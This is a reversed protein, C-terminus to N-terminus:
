DALLTEAYKIVQEPVDALYEAGYQLLFERSRFGWTVSICKIGANKATDIDVDSDGCYVAFRKDVNIREMLELIRKPDPKTLGETMGCVYDVCDPFYTEKLRRAFAEDKNTHAAVTFNKKKLTKLMESVGEYPHTKDNTHLNYYERQLRLAEESLEKRKETVARLMLVRVGNGVMKEVDKEGYEPLNLKRMAYNVSATLDSLTNLLTGDMDFIVLKHM